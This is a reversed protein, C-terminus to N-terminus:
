RRRCRSRRSVRRRATPGASPPAWTAIPRDTAVIKGIYFTTARNRDTKQLFLRFHTGIRGDFNIASAGTATPGTRKSSRYRGAKRSSKKLISRAQGPLHDGQGTVRFKGTERIEFRRSGVSTTRRCRCRRRHPPSRDATVTTDQQATAVPAATVALLFASFTAILAFVIRRM